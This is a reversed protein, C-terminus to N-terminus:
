NSIAHLSDALSTEIQTSKTIESCIVKGCEEWTTRMEWGALKVNEIEKELHFLLRFFFFIFTLVLLHFITLFIFRFIPTQKTNALEQQSYLLIIAIDLLLGSRLVPKGKGLLSWNYIAVQNCTSTQRERGNETSPSKEQRHQWPNHTWIHTVRGSRMDSFCQKRPTVWWRQSKHYTWVRIGLSQPFPHSLCMGNLVLLGGDGVNQVHDLQTVRLKNGNAELFKESSNSNPM